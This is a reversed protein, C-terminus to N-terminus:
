LPPSLGSCRELFFELIDWLSGRAWAERQIVAHGLAERQAETEGDSDELYNLGDEKWCLSRRMGLATLPHLAGLRLGQASSHTGM